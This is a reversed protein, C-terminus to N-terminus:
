GVTVSSKMADYKAPGIGPVNMLDSTRKFSGKQTRYTIIAKATSPGVGPLTDLQETSATNINVKSSGSSSGSSAVTTTVLPDVPPTAGPVTVPPQTTRSPRLRPAVTPSSVSHMSRSPVFVQEADIITQALNIRQLDASTTAGGAAMVADVVRASSPLEYVGPNKVSGTVHVKVTANPSPVPAMTPANVVAGTGSVRPVSSELPPGSPRVLLWFALLACVGIFTGLALRRLGVFAVWHRLRDRIESWDPIEM